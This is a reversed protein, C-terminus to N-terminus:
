KDEMGRVRRHAAAKKKAEQEQVTPANELQDLMREDQTEKPAPPPAADPASPPAGADQGENGADPEQPSAADKGGNNGSDGQGSDPPGGDPPGSDPPHTSGDGPGSDPPQADNGADKQDEIRRLAIARNWAADRGVPDGADVMGPAFRLSEDYAKVAAEYDGGLFDLNGELYRAHARLDTPAADDSAVHQVIELACAIQAARAQHADDSQGGDIEEDGFRQGYAEGIKFLSLGLDFAGNPKKRVSDPLGITGEKCAGTSLYDELATAAVTADGGDLTAIAEKVEPAEREFPRSPSWGCAALPALM